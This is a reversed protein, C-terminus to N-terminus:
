PIVIMIPSFNERTCIKTIFTPEMYRPFITWPRIWINGVHSVVQARLLQFIKLHVALQSLPCTARGKIIPM